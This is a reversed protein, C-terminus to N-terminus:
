ADPFRGCDAFVDSFEPRSALDVHEVLAVDEAVRSWELRGSVADIAGLLSTNGWFGVNASPVGGPFMGVRRASDVNLAAGFSGALQLADLEREELGAAMLTLRQGTKM